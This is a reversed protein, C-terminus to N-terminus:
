PLDKTARCELANSQMFRLMATSDTEFKRGILGAFDNRTRLKTIVLNVPSQSGNRLKRALSLLSSGKEIEYKGPRLREWVKLKDALWNFMAPHKLYFSDQLTQMVAEESAAGTPIYLFKRPESFNTANGTIRWAFFLAVVFLVLLSFGFIKKMQLFRNNESSSTM